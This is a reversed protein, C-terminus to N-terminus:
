TCRVINGKIRDRSKDRSKRAARAAVLDDLGGYRNAVRQQVDCKSTNGFFRGIADGTIM